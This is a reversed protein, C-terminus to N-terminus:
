VCGSKDCDKNPQKYWVFLTRRKRDSIDFNKMILYLSILVWAYVHTVVDLPTTMMGWWEWKENYWGRGRCGASCKVMAADAVAGIFQIYKNVAFVFFWCVDCRLSSVKCKQNRIVPYVPVGFLLFFLFSFTFARGKIYKIFSLKEHRM